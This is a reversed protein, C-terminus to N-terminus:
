GMCNAFCDPKVILGEFGREFRIGIDVSDIKDYGRVQHLDVAM